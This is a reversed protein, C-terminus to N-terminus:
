AVADHDVANCFEDHHLAIDQVTASCYLRAYTLLELIARYGIFAGVRDINDFGDILFAGSPLCVHRFESRFILKLFFYFVIDFEKLVEKLSRDADDRDTRVTLLCDDSLFLVAGM